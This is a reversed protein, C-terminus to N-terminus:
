SISYLARWFHPAKKTYLRCSNKQIKMCSTVYNPNIKDFITIYNPINKYSKDNM